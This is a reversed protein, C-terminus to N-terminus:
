SARRIINFYIEYEPTLVFGPKRGTQHSICIRCGTSFTPVTGFIGTPYCGMVMLWKM